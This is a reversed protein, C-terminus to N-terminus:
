SIRRPWRLFTDSPVESEEHAITTQDEAASFEQREPEPMNEAVRERTSGERIALPSCMFNSEDDAASLAAGAAKISAIEELTIDPPMSSLLAEELGSKM